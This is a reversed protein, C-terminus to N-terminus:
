KIELNRMDERWPNEAPYNHWGRASWFDCMHCFAALENALRKYPDYDRVEGEVYKLGIKQNENLLINYKLILKEKFNEIANENKIGNEDELKIEDKRLQKWPKELDHLFLVLLADSLSFPLPRKKNLIDYLMIALNMTEAVHDLYGGEWAQHKTKSGKALKFLEENEELIKFCCSKSPEDIFDILERISYYKNM